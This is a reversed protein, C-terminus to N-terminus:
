HPRRSRSRRNWADYDCVMLGSAATICAFSKKQESETETSLRVLVRLTKWMISCSLAGEKGVTTERAATDASRTLSSASGDTISKLSCIKEPVCCSKSPGRGIFKMCCSDVLVTTSSFPSTSGPGPSSRKLKFSAACTTAVHLMTTFWTPCGATWSVRGGGGGGIGAAEVQPRKRVNLEKLFEHASCLRDPLLNDPHDFPSDETAASSQDIGQPPFCGLFRLCRRLAWSVRSHV